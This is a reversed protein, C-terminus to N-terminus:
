KWFAYLGTSGGIYLKDSDVSATGLFGYAVKPSLGANWVIHGNLPDIALQFGGAITAYATTGDTVMAPFISGLTPQIRWREQGTAPDLGQIHGDSWGVVLVGQALATYRLSIGILHNSSPIIWKLAGARRDLAIIDGNQTTAYVTSADVAVGGLCSATHQAPVHQTFDYFWRLAGTTADFVALGGRLGLDAEGYGYFVDEGDVVPDFAFAPYSVPSPARWKLLGTRADIGYAIGRKSGSFVMSDNATPIAQAPADGSDGVFLWARQGTQRNFAFLYGDAVVVVPGSTVTGRGLTIEGALGTSSHWAVSGNSKNLAWVDHHAGPFYARDVDSSVRGSALGAQKWAIRAAPGLIPDIPEKPWFDDCAVLALLLAACLTLAHLARQQFM